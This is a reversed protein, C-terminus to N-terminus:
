FLYLISALEPPACIGSGDVQTSVRKMRRSDVHVRFYDTLIGSHRKFSSTSLICFAHAIKQFKPMCLQGVRRTEASCSFDDNYAMGPREKLAIIQLTAELNQCSLVTPWEIFTM